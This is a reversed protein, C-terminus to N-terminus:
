IELNKLFYVEFPISVDASTDGDIGVAQILFDISL